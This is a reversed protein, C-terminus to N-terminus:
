RLGQFLEPLEFNEMDGRKFDPIDFDRGYRNYLWFPDLKFREFDIRLRGELYDVQQRYADSLRSYYSTDQQEKDPVKLEEIYKLLNFCTTFHGCSIIAAKTDKKQDSTDFWLTTGMRFAAEAVIQMSRGPQVPIINNKMKYREYDNSFSLDYIHNNKIRHSYRKSLDASKYLLFRIRKLFVDNNLTLVSSFREKLLRIIVLVPTAGFHRFLNTVIEPSFNRELDLGGVSKINGKIYSAAGRLIILMISSLLSVATGSLITLRRYLESEFDMKFGLVIGTIGILFLVSLCAITTYITIGKLGTYSSKNGPPIYPDMFDSGVDNVLMLDFPSFSTKQGELRREQADMISELAQNDTIGGDMLGFKFDSTKIHPQFVTDIDAPSPHEPLEQILRDVNEKGYLRDLEPRDMQNLQVYLASLLMDATLDRQQQDSDASRYTFDDPFVIPEFGAPFCSSAALLDSIKLHKAAAMDLHIKFNGYRFDDDKVDKDDQKMKVNQRFLLGKYFETANFCVEELHSEKQVAELDGLTGGNFLCSDYAIAFANIMNRKKDPRNLWQSDDNLIKFVQDLLRTGEINDFLSRYFSEFTRGGAIHQAYMANTITGGSASAVFTVNHLLPIGNQQKLEYLYSLVGLAFSAARFGGGSFALAIHEFPTEERRLDDKYLNKM